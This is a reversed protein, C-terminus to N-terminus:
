RKATHIDPGGANVSYVSATNNVPRTQEGTLRLLIPASPPVESSSVGGYTMAMTKRKKRMTVRPNSHTLDKWWGSDASGTMAILCCTNHPVESFSIRPQRHLDKMAYQMCQLLPSLM